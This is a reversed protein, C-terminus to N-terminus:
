LVIQRRYLEKYYANTQLLESHTGEAMLDGSDGLILISDAMMASSVRHTVIVSTVDRFRKKLNHIIQKETETDIASLCDDLIMIPADTVLSRAISIRQKQGGSLMLGREGVLTEFKQDFRGIEELIGARRAADEIQSQSVDDSGFAINESITESFLFADQPVYAMQRRLAGLEYSPIPHDDILISGKTVDYSRNILKVLTSKGSGVKGMIAIIQRPSVSFSINRLIPSGKDYSFSVNDFTIKGSVRGENILGSKIQPEQNLFDLIRKMSVAARQIISTVWGISTIPWALMNIYILFQAIAGYTIKGEAVHMGGIYIVLVNSLGTLFIISPFFFAQVQALRLTKDRNDRVIYSFKNRSIMEMGFVKLVRIGSVSEQVFSALESIAKQVSHSRRSIKISITYTLFSLLPLPSFVYLTLIPDISIMNVLCIVIMTCLSVTYMLAPGLYMRVQSVDESIRSVLDGTHNKSYFANSLKQYHAYVDSKLDCEIKRSMVIVMQRMMFTFFSRIVEILLLIAGLHIAAMTLDGQSFGESADKITQIVLDIAKKIYDAPMVSFFNSVVVFVVGM